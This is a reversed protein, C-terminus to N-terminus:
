VTDFEEESKVLKYSWVQVGNMFGLNNWHSIWDEAQVLYYSFTYDDVKNTFPFNVIDTKKSPHHTRKYKLTM